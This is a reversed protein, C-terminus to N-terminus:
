EIGGVSKLFLITDKRHKLFHFRHYKLVGMDKERKRVLCLPTEGDNNRANLEAGKQLLLALLDLSGFESAANHLPTNGMWNTSNVEAGNELLLKAVEVANSERNMAGSRTIDHLPTSLLIGSKLNIDAGYELFVLLIKAFRLSDVANCLPASHEESHENPDVGKELLFRIVPITDGRGWAAAGIANGGASNRAKLLTPNKELMAQVKELDGNYAAMTFDGIEQEHPRPM